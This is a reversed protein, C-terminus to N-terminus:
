KVTDIGKMFLIKLKFNVVDEHGIGFYKKKGAFCVPFLVEEYAMKLCSSGSKIKLYANIQDRLMKIVDITIKVMETWYAEKSLEGRSFAENCKKFYKDPCSLYLSDTDGYKIGFGKKKVYEAILNIYYKGASTTGGALELLYILSKKNGAKGYFTNMFLKVAKQKSDLCDYDFCVFSYESILSEPIKKGRGKALSIMKRFQERKKGLLALQAKLEVRM